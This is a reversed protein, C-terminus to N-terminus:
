RFQRVLSAEIYFDVQGRGQVNHKAVGALGLRAPTKTAM